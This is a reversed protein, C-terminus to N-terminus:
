KVVLIEIKIEYPKAYPSQVTITGKFTGSQTFQFIQDAYHSGGELLTHDDADCKRRESVDNGSIKCEYDSFPPYPYFRNKVTFVDKVNITYTTQKESFLM